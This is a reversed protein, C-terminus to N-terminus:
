KKFKKYKKTAIKEGMKVITECDNQTNSIIDEDPIIKDKEFMLIVTSGGFEFRGKEQGKKVNPNEKYNVIKGIMLAGVEMMLINGFNESKLISYERCNEKYIPYVDNAVPNVTHLVGQIFRSKSEIGNDVYCYRHYDDVTLRFVCIYGGEFREALKKDKLLQSVTYRTNKINFSKDSNIKYISLKSDCPSIVHDECMDIPRKDKKIKRIFFDNYSEYDKKEYQSMDINNAKCFSSIGLTSIKSSMIRGVIASIAPNVLIKVIIRGLLTTYMWKLLKDQGNDEETIKGYRDAYKM